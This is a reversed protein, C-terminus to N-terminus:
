NVNKLSQLTKEYKDALLETHSDFEASTISTAQSAHVTFKLSTRVSQVNHVLYFTILFKSIQYRM